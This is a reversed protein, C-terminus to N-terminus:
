NEWFRRVVGREFRSEYLDALTKLQQKVKDLKETYYELRSKHMNLMNEIFINTSDKFDKELYSILLKAASLNEETKNFRTAVESYLNRHEERTLTSVNEPLNKM